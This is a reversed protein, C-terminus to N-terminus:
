EGLLSICDPIGATMYIEPTASGHRPAETLDIAALVFRDAFNAKDRACHHKDLSLHELSHAQKWFFVKESNFFPIIGMVNSLCTILEIIDRLRKGIMLTVAAVPVIVWLEDVVRVSVLKDKLLFIKRGPYKREPQPSELNVTLDKGPPCAAAQYLEM